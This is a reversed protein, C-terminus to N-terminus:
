LVWKRGARRKENEAEGYGERGGTTRGVDRVCGESVGMTVVIGTRKSEFLRIPLTTKLPMAQRSFARFQCLIRGVVQGLRAAERGHADCCFNGMLRLEDPPMADPICAHGNNPYCQTLEVAQLLRTEGSPHKFGNEVYKPKKGCIQPKRQVVTSSSSLLSVECLDPALAPFM